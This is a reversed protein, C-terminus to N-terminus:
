TAPRAVEEVVLVAEGGGARVEIVRLSPRGGRPIEDGVRWSPVATRFTPPDAPAGEPTELKFLFTM